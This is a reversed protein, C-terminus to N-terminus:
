PTLFRVCATATQNRVLSYSRALLVVGGGYPPTLRGGAGHEVESPLKPQDIQGACWGSEPWVVGM